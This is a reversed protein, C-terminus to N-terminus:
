TSKTVKIRNEMGSELMISDFWLITSHNSNSPFKHWRTGVGSGHAPIGGVPGPQEPGLGVQSSSKWAHPMYERKIKCNKYM